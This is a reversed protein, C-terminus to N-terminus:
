APSVICAPPFSLHAHSKRGCKARPSRLFHSFNIELCSHSHELDNLGHHLLFRVMPSQWSLFKFKSAPDRDIVFNVSANCFNCEGDYIILPQIKELDLPTPDAAFDATSRARTSMVVRCGCPGSPVIPESPSSDVRFASPSAGRQGTREQQFELQM